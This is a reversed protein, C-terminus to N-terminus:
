WVLHKIQMNFGRFWLLKHLWPNFWMQLSLFINHHKISSLLVCQVCRYFMVVDQQAWGAATSVESSFGQHLEVPVAVGNNQSYGERTTETDGVWKKNTYQLLLILYYNCESDRETHTDGCSDKGASRFSRVCLPRSEFSNTYRTWIHQWTLKNWLPFFIQVALVETDM